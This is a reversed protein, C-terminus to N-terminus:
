KTVLVVGKYNDTEGAVPNNIVVKWIYSEGNVAQNGTRKDTGDWGANPDNTQYVLGGDKPDIIMMTFGTNREKLAFPIFTNRRVDSHLPNFADVAMLNYDNEINVAKSTQASCGNQDITELQISYTGQKFFHFEGEKGNQIVNSKNYSWKYDNAISNTRVITSPLGNKYINELDIEFYPEISSHVVFSNEKESDVDSLLYTGSETLSVLATKKAAISQKKGSPYTVIIRRSNTNSIKITENLCQKAIVPLSIPTISGSSSIDPSQSEVLQTDQTELDGVFHNDDSKDAKKSTNNQTINTKAPTSNINSLTKKEVQAKEETIITNDNKAVSKKVVSKDNTNETTLEESTIQTNKNKNSDTSSSNLFYLSTAIGVIGVVIASAKWLNFLKKPAATPMAVDLRTQLAEWAQPNYPADLDQLSEKFLNELNQSM